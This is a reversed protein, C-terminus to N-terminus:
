QLWETPKRLMYGSNSKLALPFQSQSVSSRGIHFSATAVNKISVNSRNPPFGVIVKKNEFNDFVATIPPALDSDGSILIAVDYKDHLADVIM